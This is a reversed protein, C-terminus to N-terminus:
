VREGITVSIDIPQGGRVLSVPVEKGVREGSLLALLEDLNTVSEGDLAVIIDGVLLGANAAPSDSEVSVVLLGTEQDLKETLADPLRAPQAGVGLFGRRMRGHTLLADAVRAIVTTPLTISAGRFGSTNMGRVAGSADVLPGGSFGPYMVVDTQVFTLLRGPGWGFGFGWGGRRQGRRRGHRQEGHGHERKQHRNDELTRLASVVGLTAQVDEGPRGLALVLHGVKLDEDKNWNAAPLDAQVRLIAIDSEPDRGVLVANATDGGEIGVGINDPREIIHHATVVLSEGNGSSWVIGTGPIRRRSEVRVLSPSVAEVTNALADSLNKLVESM